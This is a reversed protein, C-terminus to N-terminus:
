DKPIAIEEQLFLNVENVYFRLEGCVAYSIAKCEPCQLCWIYTKKHPQGASKAESLAIVEPMDEHKCSDCVLPVAKLHM